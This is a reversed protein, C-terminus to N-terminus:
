AGFSSDLTSSRMALSWVAFSSTEGALYNGKTPGHENGHEEPSSHVCPFTNMVGMGPGSIVTQAIRVEIQEEPVKTYGQFFHPDLRLIGLFDHFTQFALSSGYQVLPNSTSYSRFVCHPSGNRGLITPLLSSM